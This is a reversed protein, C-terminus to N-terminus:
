SERLDCLLGDQGLDVAHAIRQLELVGCHAGFARLDQHTKQELPVVEARQRHQVVVPQAVRRDLLHRGEGLVGVFALEVEAGLEGDVVQDVGAALVEGEEEVFARVGVSGATEGDVHDVSFWKPHAVFM